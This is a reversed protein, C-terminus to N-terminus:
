ALRLLVPKGEVKCIPCTRANRADAACASHYCSLCAALHGCPAFLAVRPKEEDMCIACGILKERESEDKAAALPCLGFSAADPADAPPLQSSQVARAAGAGLATRPPMPQAPTQASQFARQAARLVYVPSRNDPISVVAAEVLRLEVGAPPAPVAIGASLAQEVALLYYRAAERRRADTTGRAYFRARGYFVNSRDASIQAPTRPYTPPPDSM